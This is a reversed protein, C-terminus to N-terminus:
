QRNFVVGSGVGQRDSSTASQAPLIESGQTFLFIHIRGNSTRTQCTCGLSVHTTAHRHDCRFSSLLTGLITNPTLSLHMSAVHCKLSYASLRRHHAGWVLHKIDCVRRRAHDAYITFPRRITSLFSSRSKSRRSHGGALSVM